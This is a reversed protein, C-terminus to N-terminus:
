YWSLYRSKQTLQHKKEEKEKGHERKGLLEDEADIIPDYWNAKKNAWIIWDESVTVTAIAARIYNRIDTAIRYDEAMNELEIIKKIENARKEAMEEEKKKM